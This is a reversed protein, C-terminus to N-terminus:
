QDGGSTAEERQPRLESRLAAVERQLEDIRRLLLANRDATGEEKERQGIFYTALNATVYGFVSVAYLRMLIGIIRAEASVPYKETNITTVLASSWWVADGFTRIPSDPHGRDFFWIGVSGASAVLVTLGAVYAFQHSATVRRLQRMGRNFGGILRVLNLSRVARVARLARIPRLFPLALSIVGLWNSRLFRLKDPAITFRIVFDILFIVWIWQLASALWLGERTGAVIGAFDIMLLVFFVLGLGVMFPELVRSVNDLLEFRERIEAVTRQRRSRRRRKPSTAAM